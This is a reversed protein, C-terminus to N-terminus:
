NSDNGSAAVLNVPKVEEFLGESEMRTRRAECVGRLEAALLKRNAQVEKFRERLKKIPKPKPKPPRPNLLDYDNDADVPRELGLKDALSANILDLDSGNDILAVIKILSEIAPGSVLSPWYFHRQSRISPCTSDQRATPDDVVEEIVAAVTPTPHPQSSVRDVYDSDSDSSDFPDDYRHMVVAVPAKAKGKARAGDKKWGELKSRDATSLRSAADAILASTIKKYKEPDPWGNDCDGQTHFVFPRRCKTCGANDLLLAKEDEELTGVRKRGAYPFTSNSSSSSPARNEDNRRARKANDARDGFTSSSSRKEVNHKTILEMMRKHDREEDKVRKEDLEVLANIWDNFSEIDNLRTANEDYLDQLPRICHSQLHTRLDTDSMHTDRELLIANANRVRNSYRHFTENSSQSMSHLQRTFKVEWASTHYIKRLLEIFDSLKLLKVDDKNAAVHEKATPDRLYPLCKGVVKNDAIGNSEKFELIADHYDRLTELSPHGQTLIPPEKRQREVRAADEDIPKSFSPPMKRRAALPLQGLDIAVARTANPDNFFTGRPCNASLAPFVLLSVLLAGSAVLGKEVAVEVVVGVVVWAVAAVASGVVWVMVETARCVAVPWDAIWVMDIWVVGVGCDAVAPAGEAFAGVAPAAVDWGVDRGTKVIAFVM